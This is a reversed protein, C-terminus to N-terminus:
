FNPSLLIANMYLPWGSYWFGRFIPDDAFLIVRGSGLRREVLWASRDLRELNSESIVGSIRDLGEPFYGVTEYTSSPEFGVGSSLVFLRDPQDGGVAAGFTLPHDPDMVVPLITGPVREMWQEMSREERTRLDRELREDRELDDEDLADREEVGAFGAGIRQAAGSVAVLTGGARVWSELREMGGSGLGSQPNGSPLIVVDWASLDMSGADSLNVADFPLDVVQELFHWHAGFSTSATGEGGMLAVRPLQIAAQDNTGLDPGTTSYGTAIPTILGGLGADTIRRDLEDNRGQPFFLTGRPYHTGELSFTDSMAYARGGEELFQILGRTHGFSPPLLYGYRGSSAIPAGMRDRPSTVPRWEGGSAGSAYHAEVGYAYPLAWATIDYSSTGDLPNEPRLLAGALRGRAQRARVRHTGAPFADRAEYGPYAALSFSSESVLEEVEVGHRLLLAVLADLRAPDDGPVLYWDDLGEDIERHFAAFGELLESKGEMTTILTAHGTTRHGFARDRLTLVTGDPREVQRGGFGGGGQEYTMGIAGVLSPWSDGYGPYFLDFNQGTYYLLGEADMARANGAGFREGWDLIHDPFITNIPTAAPFFFYSSRYGMEHFDVHVQPNWQMWREARQQSEIQTLWAWDRNLDFLYHNSRGGPWPERRERLELNTNNRTQATATYFNVYRDRGDPNASPDMVVIVSDLVGALAPDGSALDWATWIAAEPSSSENGHVGYTFYVVAPNTRAIEAAREAPTSPDTLERNRALIGELDAHHDPRAIVVQLLPRREYTLGYDDLTVLESAEALARMYQEIGRMDTFHEGIEYGLVEAPTPVSQAELTLPLVPLLLLALLGGIPRLVATM